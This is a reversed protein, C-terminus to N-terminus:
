QIMWAWQRKHRRVQKIWKNDYRQDLEQTEQVLECELQVRAQNADQLLKLAPHFGLGGVMQTGEELCPHLASLPISLSIPDSLHHEEESSKWLVELSHLNVKWGVEGICSALDGQGWLFPTAQTSLSPGTPITHLFHWQLSDESRSLPFPFDRLSYLPQQHIKASCGHNARTLWM